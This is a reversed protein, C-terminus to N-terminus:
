ESKHVYDFMSSKEYTALVRRWIVCDLMRFALIYEPFSIQPTTSTLPLHLQRFFGLSRPVAAAAVLVNIRDGKALGGCLSLVNKTVKM